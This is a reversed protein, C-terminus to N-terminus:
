IPSAGAYSLRYCRMCPLCSTMPEIGIAPEVKDSRVRALATRKKDATRSAKEVRNHMIFISRCKHMLVAHPDDLCANYAALLSAEDSTAIVPSATAVAVPERISLPLPTHYSKPTVIPAGPVSRRRHRSSGEPSLSVVSCHPPKALHPLTNGKLTVFALVAVILGDLVLPIVRVPDLQLLVALEAPRV